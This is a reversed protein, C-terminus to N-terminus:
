GCAQPGLRGEVEVCYYYQTSPELAEARFEVVDFQTPDSLAPGFYIPESLKPNKSVALRARLGERILKVKVVQPRRRSQVLGRDEIL